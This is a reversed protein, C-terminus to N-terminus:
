ANCFFTFLILLYRRNIFAAFVICGVSVDKRRNNWRNALVAMSHELSVENGSAQGVVANLM